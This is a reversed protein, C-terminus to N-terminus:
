GSTRARSAGRRREGEQAAFRPVPDYPLRVDELPKRLRPRRPDSLDLADWPILCRNRRAPGLAPLLWRAVRGLSLRELLGAVGIVYATIECRGDEPRARMEEIRGVQRGRADLVRAGLLEEIRIERRAM